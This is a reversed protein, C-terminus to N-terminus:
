AISDLSDGLVDSLIIAFVQAPECAKAFRGGKVASLHKRIINIQTIDAGSALLSRTLTQTDELAVGPLPQEFLASGGGSVLFLVADRESLGSVLNLAKRAGIVSNADPIPHGAEIIELHPIPGEAHGYKTVILGSRVRSGLAEAATHAMRWAAKGIAVIVVSQPLDLVSLARRVATDPLVAKISEDIITHADSIISM